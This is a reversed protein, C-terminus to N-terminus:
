ISELTYAFLGLSNKKVAKVVWNKFDWKVEDGEKWDKFATGPPIECIKKGSKDKKEADANKESQNFSPKEAKANLKEVKAGYRLNFVDWENTKYANIYIGAEFAVPYPIPNEGDLTLVYFVGYHDSVFSRSVKTDYVIRMGGSCYYCEVYRADDDSVPLKAELNGHLPGGKYNVAVTTLDTYLQEFLKRCETHKNRWALDIVDFVKGDITEQEECTEALTKLTGKASEKFVAKPDQIKKADQVSDKSSSRQIATSIPRLVSLPPRSSVCPLTKTQAVAIVRRPSSPTARSAAATKRAGSHSIAKAPPQNAEARGKAMAAPLSKM